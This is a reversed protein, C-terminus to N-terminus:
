GDVPLIHIESVRGGSSEFITRIKGQVLEVGSGTPTAKKYAKLVDKLSSGIRIGKSTKWKTISGSYIPVGNARQGVSV